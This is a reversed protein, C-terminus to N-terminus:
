AKGKRVINLEYLADVLNDQFPTLYYPNDSLKYIDSIATSNLDIVRELQEDTLNQLNM